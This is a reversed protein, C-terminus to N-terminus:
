ACTAVDKPVGKQSDDLCGRIRRTASAATEGATLQGPCPNPSYPATGGSGL